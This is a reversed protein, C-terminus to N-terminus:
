FWGIRLSINGTLGELPNSSTGALHIKDTIMYGVGANLRLHKLLNLEASVSPEIFVFTDFDYLSNEWDGFGDNYYDYDVFRRRNLSMAGAGMQIPVTLHVLSNTFIVPEIKVGGLGLEYHHRYGQTDYYNSQVENVKGYGFFGFNIKHGFVLNVEAGSLVAVQNNLQLGKSGFGVFGRVSHDGNGLLTNPNYNSESQAWSVVSTLALASLIILKKMNLVTKIKTDKFTEAVM